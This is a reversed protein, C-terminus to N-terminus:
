EREGGASPAPRAGHAIAQAILWEGFELAQQWDIHCCGGVGDSDLVEASIAYPGAVAKLDESWAGGRVIYTESV